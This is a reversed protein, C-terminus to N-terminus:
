HSLHTSSAVFNPGQQQVGNPINTQSIAGPQQFSPQGVSPPGFNPPMRFHVDTKLM